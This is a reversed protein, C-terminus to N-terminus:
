VSGDNYAREPRNIHVAAGLVRRTICAFVCGPCAPCARVPGREQLDRGVDGRRDHRREDSGRPGSVPLIRGFFRGCLDDCRQLQKRDRQGMSVLKRRQEDHVSVSLIYGDPQNGPATGM